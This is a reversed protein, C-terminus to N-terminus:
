GILSFRSAIRFVDRLLATKPLVFSLRHSGNKKPHDHAKKKNM